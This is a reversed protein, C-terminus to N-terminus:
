YLAITECLVELAKDRDIKYAVEVNSVQNSKVGRNDVVTMGRTYSGQLEVRVHRSAFEFLEPHTLAMVACPDHLPGEIKGFYRNAYMQSFFDLLDASFHAAKNDIQRIRAIDEQYIKFQHTLNLGLMHLKAGSSFVIHAAEPDAYINFEATPTTNGFSASGGMLYVGKLKQIIDPAQRFALAINTLPGTPVLYLDDHSRATNIIFDVANQSTLPYTLEPLEPGGLGTKGHIYEAHFPQAILPRSAGAHVPVDLGLIQATIRANHQTLDLNVNGSVATIGLIQCHKAAFLIAIADDHGPDCDLIIKPASPM